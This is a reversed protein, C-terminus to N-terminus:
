VVANFTDLTGFHAHDLIFPAGHAGWGGAVGELAILGQYLGKQPPEFRGIPKAKNVIRVRHTTMTGSREMTLALRSQDHWWRNLVAQLDSGVHTLPLTASFHGGWVCTHLLGRNTRHQSKLIRRQEQFGRAPQLQWVELSDTLSILYVNM